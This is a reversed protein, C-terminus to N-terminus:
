SAAVGSPEGTIFYFGSGLFNTTRGVLRLTGFSVIQFKLQGIQGVRLHSDHYAVKHNDRDWVVLHNRHIKRTVLVVQSRLDLM